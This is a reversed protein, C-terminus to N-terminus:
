KWTPKNKKETINIAVHCKHSIVHSIVSPLLCLAFAWFEISYIRSIVLAYLNEGVDDIVQYFFISKRKNSETSM